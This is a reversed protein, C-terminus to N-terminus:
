AARPLETMTLRFAEDTCADLERETMGLRFMAIRLMDMREWACLAEIQQESTGTTGEITRCRALLAETLLPLLTAVAADNRPTVSELSELKRTQM